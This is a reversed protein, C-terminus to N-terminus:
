WREAKICLNQVQWPSNSFHRNPLIFDMIDLRRSQSTPVLPVRDRSSRAERGYKPRAQPIPQRACTAGSAFRSRAHQLTSRLRDLHDIEAYLPNRSM